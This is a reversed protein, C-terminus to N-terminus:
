HWEGTFATPAHTMRWALRLAGEAPDIVPTAQVILGQQALASALAQQLPMGHVIMSGALAIPVPNALQLTRQVAMVARALENGARQVIDLAVSDGAEAVRIVLPGVDGLM